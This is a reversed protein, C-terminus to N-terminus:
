AGCRGMAKRLTQELLVTGLHRRFAASANHDTMPDLEDAALKCADAIADDGLGVRALLQEAQHLRVPVSNVGGVALRVHCRVGPTPSRDVIAAVSAMAFDGSRRSVEEIAYGSGEAPLPLHITTLIEDPELAPGMLSLFFESARVTRKANAGRIVLEADLLVAILCMEASPDAHALSGGITGRTRTPLHGVLRVAEQLLPLRKAVLPSFEIFRQRTMAGIELVDGREEIFALDSIRNLDILVEPTTLRFNMMPLLSQGGALVKKEKGDVGSLLSVAEDISQPAFYEFRAPKM